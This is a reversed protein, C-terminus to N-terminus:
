FTRATHQPSAVRTARASVISSSFFNWQVILYLAICAQWLQVYMPKKSTAEGRPAATEAVLAPMPAARGAEEIVSMGSPLEVQEEELQRKADAFRVVWANVEEGNRRHLRKYFYRM